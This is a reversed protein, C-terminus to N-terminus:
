YIPSVEWGMSRLLEIAFAPDLRMSCENLMLTNIKIYGTITTALRIMQGDSLKKQVYSIGKGLAHQGLQLIDRDVFIYTNLNHLYIKYGNGHLFEVLELLKCVYFDSEKYLNINVEIHVIKSTASLLLGDTPPIPSVQISFSKEADPFECFDLKVSDNQELYRSIYGLNTDPYIYMEVRGGYGSPFGMQSAILTLFM